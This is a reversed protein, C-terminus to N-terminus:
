IVEGVVTATERAARTWTNKRIWEHFTMNDLEVAHHTKWPEEIDVTKALREFKKTFLHLDLLEWFKFGSPILGSFTGNRDRYNFISRGTFNMDYTEVAYMLPQQVGLFSGGFDLTLGDPYTQTYVRGGVRPRAELLLISKGAESLSKSASLGAYGAGIIICDYISM